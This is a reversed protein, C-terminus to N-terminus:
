GRGLYHQDRPLITTELMEVHPPLTAMLLVVQAADDPSMMPESDQPRGGQERAPTLMNGPQVCCCTIGFERGDLAMVQTLGWLGFKVASYAASGPRVRHASISGVNIIRGGGQAKMIPVSARMCLFPGRLGVALVRDWSDVSLEELPRHDWAAANNVLLDLRGFRTQLKQFVDDVHDPESIDGAIPEVDVGLESLETATRSLEPEGRATIVLSCGEQAFAKAISRGFGRSAGTVLAVKGDLKGM